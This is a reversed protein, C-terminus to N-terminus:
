SPITEMLRDYTLGYKEAIAWAYALGNAPMRLVKFTREAPNDPVIQSVMSVTAESLSALEDVFTVYVAPAGLDLIQQLVGGGVTRADDLTTSNFSENMVIVSNPTAQDLIEHVRVLEDEFKGRLTEIDEEREFHTFIQDPLFLRARTGPVPVGLSALHHLQGFTRAFTTKGGNNPGTVVFVREPPELRLDNSVVKQGAPVLKDALALDFTEAVDIAKSGDSVEPYTFQLGKARFRDVLELYSLYFQAERDFRGVVEDLYGRSRDCYNALRGFVDRHLKAVLDLIRGAIHDMEPYDNLRVLYSRVGGQQFKAFTAEVEVGYDPEGQPREVSVHGGHIHVAYELSGLANQLERAESVLAAFRESAAYARLYRRWRDLARARLDLEALESALSEVARCYIEIADLLWAQKQLRHRLKDVQALHERMRTMAQAFREVPERVEERELDRFVEHRYGVAEADHLVLYFFPELSYHDRGAALAELVQDLNLDGFYGPEPVTDLNPTGSEFLISYFPAESAATQVSSTEAAAGDQSYAASLGQTDPTAM